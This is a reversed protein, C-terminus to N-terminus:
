RRFIRFFLEVCIFIVIVAVFSLMIYSSSSFTLFSTLSSLYVGYFNTIVEMGELPEVPEPEPDVTACEEYAVYSTVSDLEIQLNTSQLTALDSTDNNHYILMYATDTPVTVCQSYGAIFRPYVTPVGTSSYDFDSNLYRIYLRSQFLNEEQSICYTSGSTVPILVEAVYNNANSGVTGIESRVVLSFDNYAKFGVLEWNAPKFLNTSCSNAIVVEEPLEMASVNNMFVFLTLLLCIFFGKKNM